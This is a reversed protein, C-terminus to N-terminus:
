LKDIDLLTLRNANMVVTVSSLAMAAGAIMPNLLVGFFPYLVGAAVPIGLANYIFAGLLNQWINRTTVKSVKIAKLIGKLSSGVLTIDSAAIAVDTGAGIAIGVDALALAPADNIGDGVMAVKHGSQQLKSIVASKDAPLMEAHIHKIGVQQAIHEAVQQRDGTLMIVDLGQMQLAEIAVKADEKIADAVGFLAHISHDDALFIPTQGKSDLERLAMAWGDLSLQKREMMRTNGLYWYKDDLEAQVGHGVVTEFGQFKLDELEKKQAAERIALGLPHDSGQELSAAIQLCYGETLKEAVHIVNLSPKGQTITGTKDLIVTDVDAIKQLSEGNRVLIGSQAAKGVGTIISIPTALGLACPCAIVLVTMATVIAYSLSPEPGLWYWLIFTIIAITVVVPVFISAVKDVMRAIPPKSSQAQRIMEIIQSLVTDTGIHSVSMLFSGSGNLTGGTVTDGKKKEVTVSEGTLMSEDVRSSGELLVGDLPITEGARVRLTEQLGIDELSLDLEKGNRIVHAIPPQRNMLSKIAESTRNRARIELVQGFSVLAIIILAAEFYAHRALSPITEPILVVLMSYLWAMGTGLAILTDMNSNGRKLQSWARRYFYGASYVIVGLTIIGVVLWFLRGLGDVEPLVGLVMGSIFLAAGPISAVWVRKWLQKLQAEEHAEKEIESSKGQMIEADFGAEQVAKKLLEPDVDGQVMATREALNVNAQEVGSVSSLASEVASICGACTMGAISLRIAPTTM